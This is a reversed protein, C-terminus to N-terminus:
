SECKEAEIRKRFKEIVSQRTEGPQIRSVAFLVMRKDGNCWGLLFTCSFEDMVCLRFGNVEPASGVSSEPLGEKLWKRQVMMWGSGVDHRFSQSGQQLLKEYDGDVDPHLFRSSPKLWIAM